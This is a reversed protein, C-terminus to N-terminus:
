ILWIFIAVAYLEYKYAENQNKPNTRDSLLGNVRYDSANNIHGTHLQAQIKLPTIFLNWTSTPRETRCFVRLRNTNSRQKILRM